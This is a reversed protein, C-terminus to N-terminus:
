EPKIGGITVLEKWKKDEKELFKGFEEPGMLAMTVGQNSCYDKFEKTNSSKQFGDYLIKVREKPIGKPGLFTYTTAYEAKMGLENFTPAEPVIKSREAAAIGLVKLKNGKILPFTDVVAAAIADIHGGLIAPFSASTGKYPIHTFKVGAAMEMGIASIHFLGGYGANGIRLKEPNAKAYDLIEQLTNWPADKRVLIGVPSFGVFAIPEFKVYDVGAKMTYKLLNLSPSTMVITYGDPAAIAAENLGIAHGAGPKNTVIVPQRFNKELHPQLARATVDQGGGATTCVILTIPKAPFKEQAFALGGAMTVVGLVVISLSRGVKCSTRM